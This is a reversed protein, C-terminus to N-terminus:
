GNKEILELYETIRIGRQIDTRPVKNDEICAIFHELQNKLPESANINPSSANNSSLSLSANKDDAQTTSIYPLQIFTLKNTELTDDFEALGKDGSFMMRRVKKPAFWSVVVTILLGTDLTINVVHFDANKDALISKSRMTVNIIKLPGFLYDIIALEHTASHWLINIDSPIPSLSLQEALVYKVEGLVREKLEKKLHTIYDNYLYQYGVMFINGNTKAIRELEHAEKLSTVMPKEVLVHKGALLADRALEFHTSAPTSIIVCEVDPDNILTNADNSVKVEDSFATVNKFEGHFTRSAVHRLDISDMEQALRVYNKGFYGVGIIGLTHKRFM